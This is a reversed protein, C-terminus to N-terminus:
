INNVNIPYPTLAFFRQNDLKLQFIPVGQDQFNKIVYKSTTNCNGSQQKWNFRYGVIIKKPLIQGFEAGNVLQGHQGEAVKKILRVEQEYSWEQAKICLMREVYEENKQTKRNLYSDLCVSLYSKLSITNGEAGYAERENIIEDNKTNNKPVKLLSETIQDTYLVSHFNNISDKDIEYGICFGSYSDAYHAWMLRDICNRSFSCSAFQLITSKISEYCDQVKDTNKKEQLLIKLGELIRNKFQITKTIPMNWLAKGCNLDYPDNLIKNTSFWFNGDLVAQFNHCQPSYYKYLIM